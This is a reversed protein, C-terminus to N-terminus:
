PKKRQTKKMLERKKEALLEVLSAHLKSIQGIGGAVNQAGPTSYYKKIIFDIEKDARDLEKELQRIRSLTLEQPKPKNV